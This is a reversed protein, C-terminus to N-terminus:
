LLNWVIEPMPQITLDRIENVMGVLNVYYIGEQSYLHQIQTGNSVQSKSGDGWYITFQPASSFQLQLQKSSETAIFKYVRKFPEPENLVLNFKGTQKVSNWKGSKEINLGDKIYCYYYLPKDPLYDIRLERLGPKILLTTIFQNVKTIFDIRTAAILWCEMEIIREDYVPNSLDIIVGHRDPWNIVLADKLKPVNFIGMISSINIGYDAININDIYYGIM